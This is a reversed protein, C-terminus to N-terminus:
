KKVLEYLLVQERNAPVKYYSQSVVNKTTLRIRTRSVDVIEEQRNKLLLLGACDFRIMPALYHCGFIDNVTWGNLIITQLIHTENKFLVIANYHIDLWKAQTIFRPRNASRLKDFTDLWEQPISCSSDYSVHM